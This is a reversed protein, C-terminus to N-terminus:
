MTNIIDDSNISQVQEEDPKEQGLQGREEEKSNEEEKLEQDEEIM